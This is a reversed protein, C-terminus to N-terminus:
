GDTQIEVTKIHSVHVCMCKTLTYESGEPTEEEVCFITQAQPDVQVKAIPFLVTQPGTGTEWFEVVLSTEPCNKRATIIKQVLVSFLSKEAPPDGLVIDRFHTM